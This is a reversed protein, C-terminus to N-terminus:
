HISKLIKHLHPKRKYFDEEDLFDHAMPEKENKLDYQVTGHELCFIQRITGNIIGKNIGPENCNDIPCEFFHMADNHNKM